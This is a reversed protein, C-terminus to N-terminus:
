TMNPLAQDQESYKIVSVGCAFQWSRQWLRVQLQSLTVPIAKIGKKIQDLKPNQLNEELETM